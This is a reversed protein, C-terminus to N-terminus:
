SHVLFVFYKMQYVRNLTYMCVSANGAIGKVCVLTFSAYSIVNIEHLSFMLIIFHVWKEGNCWGFLSGDKSFAVAKCNKGSDRFFHSIYM